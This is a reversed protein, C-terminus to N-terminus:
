VAWRRIGRLAWWGQCACRITAAAADVDAVWDGPSANTAGALDTARQRAERNEDGAKLNQLTSPNGLNVERQRPFAVELAILALSLRGTQIM